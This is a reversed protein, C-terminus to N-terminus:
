SYISTSWDKMQAFETFGSVSIKNLTIGKTLNMEIQM